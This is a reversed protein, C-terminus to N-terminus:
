AAPDPGNGTATDRRARLVIGTGNIVALGLMWVLVVFLCIGAVRAATRDYDGTSLSGILWLVAIITWITRASRMTRQRITVATLRRM